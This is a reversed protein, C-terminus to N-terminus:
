AKQHLEPPDNRRTKRLGTQLNRELMREQPSEQARSQETTEALHRTDWIMFQTTQLIKIATFCHLM